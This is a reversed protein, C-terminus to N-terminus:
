KKYQEAEAQPFYYLHPPKVYFFRRRGIWIQKYLQGCKKCKEIKEGHHDRTAPVTWAVFELGGPLCTLGSPTEEYNCRRNKVTFDEGDYGYRRAEEISLPPKNAYMEEIKFYRDLPTWWGPECDINRVEDQMVFCHKYLGNCTRCRYVTDKAIFHASDIRETVALEELDSEECSLGRFGKKQCYKVYESDDFM